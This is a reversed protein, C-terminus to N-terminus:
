KSEYDSSLMWFPLVARKCRHLRKFKALPFILVCVPIVFFVFVSCTVPVAFRWTVLMSGRWLVRHEHV